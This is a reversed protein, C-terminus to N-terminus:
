FHYRYNVSVSTENTEGVELRRSYLYHSLGFSLEDGGLLRIGAGANFQAGFTKEPWSHGVRANVYYRPSSYRPYDANVNGRALSTSLSVTTSEEQIVSDMTMAPSLQLESPVVQEREFRSSDAGISAIWAHSGIEGRFGFESSVQLGLAVKSNDIRTRIDTTDIQFQAFKQAGLDSDIGFSLRNQKGAIRLVSSHQAIENYSFGSHVRHKSNNSTRYYRGEFFAQQDNDTAIFGSTLVGGQHQNDYHVSLRTVQQTDQDTLNFRNSDFANQTHAVSFGFNSNTLTHRASVGFSNIGLNQLFSAGYTTAAYSPRKVRIESYQVSAIERDSLSAPARKIQRTLNQAQKDMGLTRLALVRDGASISGGMDLVQRVASKDKESIAMAIEQWAPTQLRKQHLRSMISRALEHRQTSMLWSIALDEQWFNTNAIPENKANVLYQTFVEQERASGYRRLLKSYQQILYEQDRISGQALLPRLKLMTYERLRLAKNAQGSIELADAYLLLISYDAEIRDGLKEFWRLSQAVRGLQLNAVALVSWLAPTDVSRSEAETLYQSLHSTDDSSISLWLMGALADTNDPDIALAMKYASRAEAHRGARNVISALHLWYQATAHLGATVSHTATYKGPLSQDGRRDRYKVASLAFETKATTQWLLEAEVVARDIQGLEELAELVRRGLIEYDSNQRLQNLRTASLEVLKTKKYRWGIESLVRYQFESLEDPLLETVLKDSLDAAEDLKNMRWLLEIQNLVSISEEGVDEDYLQWVRLAENYQFHRMHLDALMELRQANVGYRQMVQKIDDAASTPDGNLEHFDVLEQLENQSPESLRTRQQLAAIVVSPQLTLKALRLLQDLSESDSQMDNIAIWHDVAESPRNNWEAIQALRVLLDRDEPYIEISQKAVEHAATLDSNAMHLDIQRLWAAKNDRAVDLLRANWELAKDTDGLQQSLVVGSELATKDDSDRNIKQQANELLAKRKGQALLLKDIQQDLESAQEDSVLSQSSRLFEVARESQNSAIAWRSASELWKVQNELDQNSLREYIDVALDPRENALLATALTDLQEVDRDQEQMLATLTEEWIKPHSQSNLHHLLKIRLSFKKEADSGAAIARAFCDVTQDHATENGSAASYNGCQEFWRASQEADALALAYYLKASLEPYALMASLEAGRNLNTISRAESNDLLKQLQELLQIQQTNKTQVDAAQQYGQFVQELELRYLFDQDLPINPHRTLVDQAQDFQGATLMKELTAQLEEQTMTGASSQAKLYALDLEDVPEPVSQKKDTAAPGLDTKSPLLVVFAIAFAGAILLLGVGSLLKERDATSSPM